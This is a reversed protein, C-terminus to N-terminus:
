APRAIVVITQTSATSTATTIMAESTMQGAAEIRSPGFPSSIILLLLTASASISAGAAVVSVVVTVHDDVVVVVNTIISRSIQLVGECGYPSTPISRCGRGAKRPRGANSSTL